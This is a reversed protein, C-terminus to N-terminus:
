VSEVLVTAFIQLFSLSQRKKLYVHTSTRFKHEQVVFSEEKPVSIYLGQKPSWEALLTNRLLPARLGNLDSNVFNKYFFQIGPSSDM